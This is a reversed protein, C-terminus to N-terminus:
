MQMNLSALWTRSRHELRPSGYDSRTVIYGIIATTRQTIFLQLQANLATPENKTLFPKSTLFDFEVGPQEQRNATLYFSFARRFRYSMSGSVNSNVFKLYTNYVSWTYSLSANFNGRPLWNLGANFSKSYVHGLRLSDGQYLATATLRGDLRRSLNATFDFSHTLQWRQDARVPDSDRSITTSYRTRTYRFPSGDLSGYWTDTHYGSVRVHTTDDGAVVTRERSSQQFWTRAWSFRSDIGNRLYRTSQASATLYEAMQYGGSEREIQYTKLASIDLFSVPTWVLQSSFSESKDDRIGLRDDNQTFRGSYGANGTVNRVLKSSVITSASHTLSRSVVAISSAYRTRFVNYTTAISGSTGIAKTMAVTGNWSRNTNNISNVDEHRDVRSHGGRISLWDRFWSVDATAHTNVSRSRVVSDIGLARARSYAVSLNPLRMLQTAASLRVERNRIDPRVTILTDGTGNITDLIVITTDDIGNITFSSYSSRIAFRPNNVDLYWIPRFNIRHTYSQESRDINLALRATSKAPLSDEYNLFA